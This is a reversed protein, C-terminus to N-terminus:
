IARVLGFTTARITNVAITPMNRATGPMGSQHRRSAAETPIQSAAPEAAAM